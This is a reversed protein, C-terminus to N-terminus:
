RQGHSGLLGGRIGQVGVVFLLEDERRAFVPMTSRQEAHEVSCAAVAGLAV